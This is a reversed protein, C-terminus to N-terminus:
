AGLFAKLLGAIRPEHETRGEAIMAAAHADPVWALLKKWGARTEKPVLRSLEDLIATDSVGEDLRRHLLTKLGDMDMTPEPTEQEESEPDLATLVESVAKQYGNKWAMWWNGLPGDGLGADRFATLARLAQLTGETTDGSEEMLELAAETEDLAGRWEARTPEPLPPLAQPAPQVPQPTIVQAPRPGPTPGPKPGSNALAAKVFAQVVEPGGAYSVAQELISPERNSELRKELDWLKPKFEDEAARRGEVLGRAHGKAEAEELEARHERELARIEVRHKESAELRAMLAAAEKGGSDSGGLGLADRFQKAMGLTKMLGDMPDPAPAKPAPAEPEKPPEYGPPPETTLNYTTDLTQEGAAWGLIRWQYRGFRGTSECWAQARGELDPDVMAMAEQATFTAVTQYTAQPKPGGKDELRYLRLVLRTEETDEARAQDRKALDELSFLYSKFARLQGEKAGAEAERRQRERDLVKEAAATATGLAVREALDLAQVRGVERHTAAMLEEESPSGVPEPPTIAERGRPFATEEIANGKHM